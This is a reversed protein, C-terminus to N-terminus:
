RCRGHGALPVAGATVKEHGEWLGSLNTRVISTIYYLAPNEMRNSLM